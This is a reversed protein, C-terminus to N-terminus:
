LVGGNFQITQAAQAHADQVEEGRVTTVGRYTHLGLEFKGSPAFRVTYHCNPHLRLWGTFIDFIRSAAEHHKPAVTLNGRSLRLIFRSALDEFVAQPDETTAPEPLDNLVDRLAEALERITDDPHPM